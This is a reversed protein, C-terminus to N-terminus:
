GASDYGGITPSPLAVHRNQGHRLKQRRGGLLPKFITEVLARAAYSSPSRAQRQPVNQYAGLENAYMRGCVGEAARRIRSSGLVITVTGLCQHGQERAVDAQQSFCNITYHPRAVTALLEIERSLRTTPIFLLQDLGWHIKHPHANTIISM